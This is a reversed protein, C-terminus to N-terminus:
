NLYKYYVPYQFCKLEEYVKIRENEEKTKKKRKRRENEEKTKNKM